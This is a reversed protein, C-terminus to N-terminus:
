PRLLAARTWHFRLSVQPLFLITSLLNNSSNSEKCEEVLSELKKL